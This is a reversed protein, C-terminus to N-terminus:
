MTAAPSNCLCDIGALFIKCFLSMIDLDFDLRLIEGFHLFCQAAFPNVPDHQVVEGDLVHSFSDACDGATDFNFRAASDSKVSNACQPSRTSKMETPASVWETL